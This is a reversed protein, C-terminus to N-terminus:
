KCKNKTINVYKITYNNKSLQKNTIKLQELKMPEISCLVHSTVQSYVVITLHYRLQLQRYHYPFSELHRSSPTLYLLLIYPSKIWILIKFLSKYPFFIELLLISDTPTMQQIAMPFTFSKSTLGKKADM